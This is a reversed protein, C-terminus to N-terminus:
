KTENRGTACVSFAIKVRLDLLMFVQEVVLDCLQSSAHAASERVVRERGQSIVFYFKNIILM